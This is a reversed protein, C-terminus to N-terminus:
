INIVRFTLSIRASDCKTTSIKPISHKWYKNTPHNIGFISGNALSFEHKNPTETSLVKDFIKKFQVIRTAGFVLM